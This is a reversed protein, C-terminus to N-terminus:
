RYRSKVRGWSTTSAPVPLLSERCSVAVFGPPLGRLQVRATGSAFAGGAWFSAVLSFTKGPKGTLHLVAQGTGDAGVSCSASALTAPDELGGDVFGSGTVTGKLTLVFEFPFENGGPGVMMFPDNWLVGNGCGGSGSNAELTGSVLDYCGNQCPEGPSWSVFGKEDLYSAAVLDSGYGVADWCWSRIVYQQPCAAFATTPALLM